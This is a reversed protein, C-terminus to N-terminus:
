SSGRARFSPWFRARGALAERYGGNSALAREEARIRFALLVANAITFLLATRYAQHVLPLAAIELVVGLYNPHRLYRFIGSSVPKEGPLTLIRVNWRVGLARLASYRLAQGVLLVAGAVLSLWPVLTPRLLLVEVLMCVLWSAHLLRMWLMQGRGHEVAGLRRLEVENRKSLRLESLRQAAVLLVFAAFLGESLM